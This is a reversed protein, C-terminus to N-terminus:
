IIDPRLVKAGKLYVHTIKRNNNCNVYIIVRICKKLSGIVNMEQFCMLPITTIGINRVAEAPYAADLDKTASFIISIIDDIKLNNEEIIKKILEETDSFIREKTNETTIAGRM